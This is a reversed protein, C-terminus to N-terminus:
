RGTSCVAGVHQYFDWLAKSSVSKLGYIFKSFLDSMDVESQLKDHKCLETLLSTVSNVDDTTPKLSITHDFHLPTRRYIEQEEENSQVQVEDILILEQKISTTAGSDENSFPQLIHTEECSVRNYINHDISLM